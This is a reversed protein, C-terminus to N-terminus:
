CIRKWRRMPFSLFNDWYLPMMQYSYKSLLTDRRVYHVAIEVFPNISFVIVEFLTYVMAAAFAIRGNKSFKGRTFYVTFMLLALLMLDINVFYISSMVSVCMYDDNLISILYSIDVVAAGLCAYSLYRGTTKSKQRSKVALVIDILAIFISFIAYVNLFMTNM